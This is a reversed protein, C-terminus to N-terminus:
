GDLREGRRLIAEAEPTFGNGAHLVLGSLVRAAGRGGRIGRLLLLRAPQGRRKWLPVLTISGCGAGSLAGIGLSLHAAPLIFTLTGQPRISAALSGAWADLLTPSAQKARARLPDPSPSGADPHYPPNSIAHDFAHRHFPLAAADGAVVQLRPWFGNRMANAAALSALALDREVGALGIGPLRAALCLLAAGAGTGAELVREGPRAPVSAALLVPEIGSRFGTRPQAYVVKGGLLHGETLEM